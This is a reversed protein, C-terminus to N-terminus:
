SRAEMRMGMGDFIRSKRDFAFSDEDSVTLIEMDDGESLEEEDSDGFLYEGPSPPAVDFLQDALPTEPIMEPHSSNSSSKSLIAQARQLAEESPEAGQDKFYTNLGALRGLLDGLDVEPMEYSYSMEPGPELEAYEHAHENPSSGQTAKPGGGVITVPEDLVELAQSALDTQLLRLLPMLLESGLLELPNRSERHSFLGKLVQM